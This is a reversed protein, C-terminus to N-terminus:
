LIEFSDDSYTVKAAGNSMQSVTAYSTGNFLVDGELTGSSRDIVMIVGDQNTVTVEGVVAVADGTSSASGTSDASDTSGTSDTFGASIALDAAIVIQRAGYTITTTTAGAEFGDGVGNVNVSVEPLGALQMTFDLGIRPTALDLLGAAAYFGINAVNFTFRADFSNGTTDSINGSMILSDPLVGSVDGEIGSFASANVFTFSLSSVFTLTAELSAGLDDQKQILRMDMDVAGGLIGPMVASGQEIATWDIVYDSALNFTMKGSDIYADAAANEFSASVIEISFSSGTALVTGDAPFRMSMNVTVGDIVGDTITIDDGSKIITGSTFQPGTLLGTTYDSLNRSINRGHFNTEIAEASAFFAPGFLFEMSLGAAGSILGAQLEFTDSGVDAEGKIVSSWTRIDGVFTKVKVLAAADATDGPVPDISGNGNSGDGNSGDGNSGVAADVDAQLAVLIGSVDLMNMQGLINTASDIIEQMSITSDDTETGADDAIFTGGSFSNALIGLAGNIDPNEGAATTDALVAASVAGYVVGTADGSGAVAIDTIDVPQTNLINIGGLLNSVRSNANYVEVSTLGGAGTAGTALAYNAALDTYPTINVSIVDGDTAEAVLAMMSLSGPKYWEGFDVIAPDEVDELGDVRMGCGAVVDCKMRTNTDASVTVRIPGGLYASNITLSYRGDAGTTTSGVQALVTGDTNLEEAVVNGLDIIGKAVTGGLTADNGTDDDVNSCGGLVIIAMGVFGVFTTRVDM